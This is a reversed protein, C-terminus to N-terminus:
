KFAPIQKSISWTDKQSRSLDETKVIGSKPLSSPFGESTINTCEVDYGGRTDDFVPACSAGEVQVAGSPKTVRKIYKLESPEFIWADKSETQAECGYISHINNIRCGPDFKGIEANPDKRALKDIFGARILVGFSSSKTEVGDVTVVGHHTVHPQFMVAAKGYENYLNHGYINKTGVNQGAHGELRLTVGGKARLNEFFLDDAAHLQCLGYGHSADTISCNRIVGRTPRTITWKDAVDQTSAGVFIIGCFKTYNDIISADAVMFNRVLRNVVFRVKDLGGSKDSAIESYNVTYQKGQDLCSISCNEVFKNPIEEKAPTFHVMIINKTTATYYPKLTAKSSVLIHVNSRMYLEAFRYEGKPIILNGGGKKELDNLAAQLRSTQDKNTGSVVKYDKVADRTLASLDPKTGYDTPMPLTEASYCLPSTAFLLIAIITKFKSNM